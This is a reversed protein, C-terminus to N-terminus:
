IISYYVIKQPRDIRFWKKSRSWIQSSQAQGSSFVKGGRFHGYLQLTIRHHWVLFNWVIGFQMFNVNLYTVYTIMYRPISIIQAIKLGLDPWIAFILDFLLFNVLFIRKQSKKKVRRLWLWTYDCFVQCM